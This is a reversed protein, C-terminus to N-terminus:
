HACIKLKLLHFLKTPQITIITAHPVHVQASKPIDHPVPLGPTSCDMSDCLAPCSKAIVSSFQVSSYLYPAPRLTRLPGLWEQIPKLTQSLILFDGMSFWQTCESVFTKLYFKKWVEVIVLRFFSANLSM